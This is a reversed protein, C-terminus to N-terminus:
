YSYKERSRLTHLSHFLSFSPPVCRASPSSTSSPVCRTSPNFCTKKRCIILFFSTCPKHMVAFAFLVKEWVASLLRFNRRNQIKLGQGAGLRVVEVVFKHIWQFSFDLAIQFIPFVRANLHLIVRLCNFHHTKSSAPQQPHFEVKWIQFITNVRNEIRAIAELTRGDM